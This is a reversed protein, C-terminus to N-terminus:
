QLKGGQTEIGLGAAFETVARLQAPDAELGTKARELASRADDTKGLVVYSRILRRWSEADGPERRLKEDLAAVMGEIMQLRDESSMEEAAAIDAETPGNGKGSSLGANAQSIAAEVAGQWPSNAPLSSALERWADAAERLKGEQALATALFFRSRPDAPALALARRFAETAEATVVGGAEGALAEGLGAERAASSGSLRIANRWADRAETFRGQRMYIPALVEWGRADSPNDRLHLEARAVLEDVTSDAPNRQLREALPQDAMDPSGLAAYLSWSVLPVALVAALGALRVFRASSGRATATDASSIKLITRGIEARAQDAEEGGILGAAREREIEGLQDKYVELDYASDRATRIGARVFPALVAVCAVVTLAAASIWFLM